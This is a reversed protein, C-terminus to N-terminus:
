EHERGSRSIPRVISGPPCFSAVFFAFASLLYRLSGRTSKPKCRAYGMQAHYPLGNDSENRGCSAEEANGRIVAAEARERPPNLRGSEIKEGRQELRRPQKKGAFTSAAGSLSVRIIQGAGSTASVGPNDGDTNGVTSDVNVRTRKVACNNRTVIRIWNGVQHKRARKSPRPQIM